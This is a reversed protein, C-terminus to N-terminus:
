KLGHDRRLQQIRSDLKAAHRHLSRGLSDCLEVPYHHALGTATAAESAAMRTEEPLTADYRRRRSPDSLTQYASTLRVAMKPDGGRDPHADFVLRRYAAAIVEPSADRRVQLLRYYDDM